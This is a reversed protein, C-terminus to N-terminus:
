EEKRDTEILTEKIEPLDASQRTKQLRNRFDKLNKHTIENLKEKAENIKRQEEDDDAKM